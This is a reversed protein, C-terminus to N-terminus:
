ILMARELPGTLGWPAFGIIGENFVSFLSIEDLM